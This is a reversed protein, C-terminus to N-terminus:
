IRRNFSFLKNVVLTDKNCEQINDNFCVCNDEGGTFGLPLGSSDDNSEYDWDLEPQM